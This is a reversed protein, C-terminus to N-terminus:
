CSAKRSGKKKTRKGRILVKQEVLADMWSTVTEVAWGLKPAMKLSLKVFHRSRVTIGSLKASHTSWHHRNRLLGEIEIIRNQWKDNRTYYMNVDLAPHSTLRRWARKAQRIEITNPHERADPWYSYVSIITDEAKNTSLAAICIGPEGRIVLMRQVELGEPFTPPM